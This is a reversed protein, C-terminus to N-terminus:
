LIKGKAYGQASRSPLLLHHPSSTNTFGNLEQGSQFYPASICHHTLEKQQSSSDNMMVALLVLISPCPPPPSPPFLQHSSTSWSRIAREEASEVSTSSVAAATPAPEQHSSSLSFRCKEQFSDIVLIFQLAKHNHLFLFFFLLVFWMRRIM